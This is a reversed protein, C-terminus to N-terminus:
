RRLFFLASCPTLLRNSTRSERGFENKQRDELSLLWKPGLDRASVAGDTGWWAARMDRVVRMTYSVLERASSSVRAVDRLHRGTLYPLRVVTPLLGVASDVAPADPGIHAFFHDRFKYLSRPFFKSQLSVAGLPYSGELFLHVNGLHDAVALISNM